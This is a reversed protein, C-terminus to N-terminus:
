KEIGFKYRIVEGGARITALYVGSSWRNPDFSFKDNHPTFAEVRDRQTAIKQGAINYIDVTVETAITTMVRFKILDHHRAIFPNPFIFNQGEVFVGRQGEFVNKLPMDWFSNRYYNGHLQQWYLGDASRALPFHYGYIRGDDVAQFIFTSDGFATIYPLANIPRSLSLSASRIENFQDDFFILRNRSFGGIYYTREDDDWKWPLLGSGSAHLTDPHIIEINHLRNGEFSYVMFGNAHPLIIDATGNNNTDAFVIQGKLQHAFHYTKEEVDGVGSIQYTFFRNEKGSHYHIFEVIEGSGLFDGHYISLKGGDIGSIVHDYRYVRLPATSRYRTHYIYDREDHEPRVLTILYLCQHHYTANSVIRSDDRHRAIEGFNEDLWVILSYEPESDQIYQNQNLYLVWRVLTDNIRWQDDIYIPSGAWYYDQESWIPSLSTGDFSYLTARCDPTDISLSQAPIVMKGMGDFTYQYYVTDAVMQYTHILTTGEFLSLKGDSHIFALQKKGSKSFDYALPELYSVGMFDAEAFSEYKVSFTMVNSSKSINHIELPIGDGYNSQATPVSIVGDRWMKGLYDNHGSRFSDFPSGWRYFHMNTMALHDVGDAEKLAVGRHRPNANITNSELRQAIVEEDIHWILLGSPEVYRNQMDTYPIFYDWENGRLNNKMSNVIPIRGGWTTYVYDQDESLEFSHINVGHVDHSTVVGYIEIDDKIFNHQRNEVLFYERESIEVKYLTPKDSRAQPYAIPVDEVTTNIVVPDVWGAFYRIWASPLPPIRGDFNWVGTAMICFNGAGTTNSAGGSLLPLGILRGTLQALPGLIEFHRTPLPEFYDHCQSSAVFAVRSIIAGSATEYGPYDDNEPDLVNRFSTRSVFSSFMASRRIDEIDSEQGPGAHFIIIGEYSSLDIDPHADAADIVEKILLIRRTSEFSHDGYWSKLGSARFVIDPMDYSLVYREDSADLFYDQLHQMYKTFYTYDEPHFTPFSENPDFGVDDFDVRLVLFDNYLQPPTGRTLRAIYHADTDVDDFFVPTQISLHHPIVQMASLAIVFCAMIIVLSIYKGSVFKEGIVKLYLM